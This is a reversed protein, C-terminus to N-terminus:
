LAEAAPSGLPNGTKKTPIDEGGDRLYEDPIDSAGNRLGQLKISLAAYRRIHLDPNSDRRPHKSPGAPLPPAKIEFVLECPQLQREDQWFFSRPKATHARSWAIFTLVVQSIHRM